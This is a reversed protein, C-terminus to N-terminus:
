FLVETQSCTKIMDRIGELTFGCEMTAQINLFEKSSVLAFDPTQTVVVPSSGVVM